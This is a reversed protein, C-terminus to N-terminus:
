TSVISLFIKREAVYFQMFTHCPPLAMEDVEAPNWATIIHRRSDPNKKIQEILNQLQDITHEMKLWPWSRWQRGYVPGLDGFDNAFQKM